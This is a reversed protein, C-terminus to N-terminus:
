MLGHRATHSSQRLSPGADFLVDFLQRSHLTFTDCHVDAHGHRETDVRGSEGRKCYKDSHNPCQTPAAVVHYAIDAPDCEALEYTCRVNGSMACAVIDHLPKNSATPLHCRAGKSHTWSGTCLTSVGM